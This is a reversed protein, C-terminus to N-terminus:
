DTQFQSEHSPLSSQSTGKDEIMQHVGVATRKGDRRGGKGRQHMGPPADKGIHPSSSGEGSKEGRADHPDHPGTRFPTCDTNIGRNKGEEMEGFEDGDGDNLGAADPDVGEEQVVAALIIDGCHGAPALECDFGEEKGIEFTTM